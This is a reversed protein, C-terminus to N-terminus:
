FACIKIYLPCLPQKRWDTIEVNMRIHIYTRIYMYAYVSFVCTFFDTTKHRDLLLLRATSNQSQAQKPILILMNRGHYLIEKLPGRIHAFKIDTHGRVQKSTRLNRHTYRQTCTHMDTRRRALVHM